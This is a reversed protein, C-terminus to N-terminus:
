DVTCVSAGRDFQVAGDVFHSHLELTCAFPGFDDVLSQQYLDVHRTGDKILYKQHVTDSQSRVSGDPATVRFTNTFHM